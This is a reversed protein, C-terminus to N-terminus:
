FIGVWMLVGISALVVWLAFIALAPRIAVLDGHDDVRGYNVLAMAYGFSWAVIAFYIAHAMSM